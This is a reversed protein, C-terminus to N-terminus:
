PPNNVADPTITATQCGNPLPLPAAAVVRDGLDAQRAWLTAGSALSSNPNSRGLTCIKLEVWTLGPPPGSPRDGAPPNAIPTATPTAPAIPLSIRLIQITSNPPLWGVLTTRDPGYLGLAAAQPKIQLVEGVNLAM